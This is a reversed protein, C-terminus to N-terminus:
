IVLSYFNYNNGNHNNPKGCNTEVILKTRSTKFSECNRKDIQLNFHLQYKNSVFVILHNRMFIELLLFIFHSRRAVLHSRWNPLTLHFISINWRAPLYTLIQSRLITVLVHWLRAFTMSAPFVSALVGSPYYLSCGTALFLGGSKTKNKRKRHLTIHM